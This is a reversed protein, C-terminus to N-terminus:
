FKVLIISGPIACRLYAAQSYLYLLLWISFIYFLYDSIFVEGLPGNLIATEEEELM